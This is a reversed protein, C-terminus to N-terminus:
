SRKTTAGIAIRGIVYRLEEFFNYRAIELSAERMDQKSDIIVDICM